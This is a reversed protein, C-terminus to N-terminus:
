QPRVCPQLLKPTAPVFPCATATPTRVSGPKAQPRSLSQPSSPPATHRPRRPSSRPYDHRRDLDFDLASVRRPFDCRAGVLERTSRGSDVRRRRYALARPPRTRQGLRTPTRQADHQGSSRALSRTTTTSRGFHSPFPCQAPRDGLHPWPPFRTPRACPGSPVVCPRGRPRMGNWESPTIHHGGRVPHLEQTGVVRLLVSVDDLDLRPSSRM